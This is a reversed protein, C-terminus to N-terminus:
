TGPGKPGPKQPVPNERFIYTKVTTSASITQADTQRPLARINFNETNFLRSFRSLRDFFIALNHYNGRIEMSIPWEWYFEKNIEGRNTFREIELQSDFALTQIQKLIDYIERQQPIVVELEELTGTMTQLDSEIQDLQRKKAKLQNLEGEVRIREEKINNIRDDRPKFFFLYVVAFLAVALALYSYWPWDRM